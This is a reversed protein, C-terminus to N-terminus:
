VGVGVRVGPNLGLTVGVFVKVGKKVCVGLWVGSQILMLKSYTQSNKVGVGVVVTVNVGNRVGDTVGV